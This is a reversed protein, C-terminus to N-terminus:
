QAAVAGATAPIGRSTGDFYTAPFGDPLSTLTKLEAGSASSPATSPDGNTAFTIDTISSLDGTADVYGTGYTGSTKDAVNYGETTAYATVQANPSGSTLTINKLFLNGTIKVHGSNNNGYIAAGLGKNTTSGSPPGAANDYFTCGRVTLKTNTGGNNYIAGGMSSNATVKNDHFICSEVTLIGANNQIAGGKDTARGGKFYLRSIKVTAAASNIYLLASTGSTATYSPDRTLTAGNGEITISRTIYPLTSTIAITGGAPLFITEGDITNALAYRLTPADGTGATDATGSVNINFVALIIRSANMTINIQSGSTDDRVGDIVWYGFVAGTVAPSATVTVSTNADYLGDARPSTATATGYIPNDASYDLYFGTGSGSEQVAGAAGGVSITQGYFDTVPYSAPWADQDTPLIGAAGSGAIPKFGAPSLISDAGFVNTAAGSFGSGTTDSVKDSINYGSDSALASSGNLGVDKSSNATNRFFLNGTLTITATCYIAGGMSTTTHTGATNNYFTCGRVYLFTQNYVAGGFANNASARNDSFICSELTLRSKTNGRIAGGYNTARGGKFHLRRINVTINSTPNFYLLASTDSTTTYSPDRTLTAGNAEITVAKTITPLASKLAIVAGTPMTITYGSTAANAKGVEERLWADLDVGTVPANEFQATVTVDSAPMTLTYTYVGNQGATATKAVNDVTLSGSKYQYNAAPTITLTVPTEYLVTEGSTVPNNSVTATISGNQISGAITLTYSKKEFQATVTVNSAPMTFTYPGSGSIGGNNDNVKLSGAMYGYGANPTVTLTVQTGVTATTPNAVVSGNTNGGTTITYSKDEFQAAITVNKAPMNFTYTYGGNQNDGTAEAYEDNVKLSGSKYQYGTAPTITLTVDTGVTAKEPTATVTGNQIVNDITIDYEIAEFEVTVTVDEDPMTFIHTYVGDQNDDAPTADDDNVKLSGPKYGAVPTITLTVQVDAVATPANKGDVTVGVTGKADDFTVEIKHNGDPVEEFEATVTVDAAPMTFTYTNGSGKVEIENNGDKTVKPMGSLQYKDEPTVNLTIHAGEAASSLSSTLGGNQINEDITINYKKPAEAVPTDTIGSITNRYSAASVLVKIFKGLDADTLTYDYNEADPIDEWVADESNSDSRQWKYQYSGALAANLTQAGHDVTTYLVKHVAPSGNITVTGTLAPGESGGGGLSQECGTALMALAIAFACCKSWNCHKSLSNQKAFSWSPNIFHKKFFNKFNITKM